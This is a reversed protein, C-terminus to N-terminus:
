QWRPWRAAVDPLPRRTARSRHPRHVARVALCAPWRRARGRLWLRPLMLFLDFKSLPEGYDITSPAQPGLFQFPALFIEIWYRLIAYNDRFTPFAVNAAAGESIPCNGQRFLLADRSCLAKLSGAHRTVMALFHTVLPKTSHRTRVIHSPSFIPILDPFRRIETAAFTIAAQGFFATRTYPSDGTQISVHLATAEM